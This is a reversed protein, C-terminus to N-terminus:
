FFPPNTHHTFGGLYPSEKHNSILYIYEWFAPTKHHNAMFVFWRLSICEMPLKHGLEGRFFPPLSGKSALKAKPFQPFTRGFFVAKNRPPVNLLPPLIAEFQEKAILVIAGFADSGEAPHGVLVGVGAPSKRVYIWPFDIHKATFVHLYWWVFQRGKGNTKWHSNSKTEPLSLMDWSVPIGSFKDSTGPVYVTSFNVYLRLICGQFLFIMKWLMM